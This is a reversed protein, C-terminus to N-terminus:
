YAEDFKFEPDITRALEVIQDESDPRHIACLRAADMYPLATENDDATALKQCTQTIDGVRFLNRILNSTEQSAAQYGDANLIPGLDPNIFCRNRILNGRSQWYGGSDKERGSSYNSFLVVGIENPDDYQTPLEIALGWSERAELVKGDWEEPLEFPFSLNGGAEDFAFMSMEPPPLKSNSIVRAIEDLDDGEYPHGFELFDELPKFVSTSVLVWREERHSEPRSEDHSESRHGIRQVLTATHVNYRDFKEIQKLSVRLQRQAFLVRPEGDKRKAIADSFGDRRMVTRTVLSTLSDDGSNMSELRGERAAQVVSKLTTLLSDIQPIGAKDIEM